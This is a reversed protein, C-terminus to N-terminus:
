EGHQNEAIAVRPIGGTATFVQHSRCILAFLSSPALWQVMGLAGRLELSLAPQRSGDWPDLAAGANDWGLPVWPLTLPGQYGRQAGVEAEEPMGGTALSYRTGTIELQFQFDQILQEYEELQAILEEEFTDDVFGGRRRAAAEEQQLEKEEDLEMVEEDEEEELEGAGYADREEDEDEQVTAM